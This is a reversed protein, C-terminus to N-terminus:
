FINKLQENNYPEVYALLSLSNEFPFSTLELLGMITQFFSLYNVLSIWRHLKKSFFLAHHIQSRLTEYVDCYMLHKLTQKHDLLLGILLCFHLLNIQFPLTNRGKKYAKKLEKIICPCHDTIEEIFQYRVALPNLLLTSNKRRVTQYMEELLNKSM